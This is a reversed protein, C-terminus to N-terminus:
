KTGPELQDIVKILSDDGGITSVLTGNKLIEALNGISNTLSYYVSYRLDNSVTANDNALTWKIAVSRANAQTVSIKGSEGPVPPNVPVKVVQPPSAPLQQGNKEIQCSYAHEKGEALDVDQYAAMQSTAAVRAIGLGDRLVHVYDAESPIDLRVSAVGEPSIEAAPCVQAAAQIIRDPGVTVVKGNADFAGNEDKVKVQFIYGEGLLFDANVFHYLTGAPIEAVVEGDIALDAEPPTDSYILPRNDVSTESLFMESGASPDIKKRFLVYTIAGEYSSPETWVIKYTSKGADHSFETVGAFEIESAGIRAFGGGPNVKTCSTSMLLITLLIYVRAM